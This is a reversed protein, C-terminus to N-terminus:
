ADSVPSNSTEPPDKVFLGVIMGSLASFATIAAGTLFLRTDRQVEDVTRSNENSHVELVLIDYALTGVMVLIGLCIM